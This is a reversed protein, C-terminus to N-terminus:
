FGIVLKNLLIDVVNLGVIIVLPSLDIGGVNLFPFRQRFFKFLPDTLRRITVVIPNQPNISIFSLVSAIIVIIIYSIIMTHIVQFIAVIPGTTLATAVFQLVVILLLPSFDIGHVVVWKFKQRIANFVPRTLKDVMEVIPQNPNLQFFSLIASAIIIWIYINIAIVLPTIIFSSM